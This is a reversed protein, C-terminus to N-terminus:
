SSSENSWKDRAVLLREGSLLGAFERQNGKFELLMTKIQM